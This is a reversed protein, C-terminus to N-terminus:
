TASQKIGKKVYYSPQIFLDLSGFDTLININIVKLLSFTYKAIPFKIKRFQNSKKIAKNTEVM